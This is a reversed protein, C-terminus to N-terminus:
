PDPACGTGPRQDPRPCAGGDQYHKVLRHYPNTPFALPSLRLTDLLPLSLLRLNPAAARLHPIDFAILNHGVLCDATSCFADLEALADAVARRRNGPFKFAESSPEDVAALALIREGRKDIELDISIRRM